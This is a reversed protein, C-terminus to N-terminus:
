YADNIFDRNKMIEKDDFTKHVKLGMADAVNTDLELNGM